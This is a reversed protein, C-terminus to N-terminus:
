RRFTWRMWVAMRVSSCAIQLGYKRLRRIFIVPLAVTWWQPDHNKSGYVGKDKLFKELARRIQESDSIGDREKLKEMAQAMEPKPRFAKFM